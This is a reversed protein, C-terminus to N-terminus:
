TVSSLQLESMMRLLQMTTVAADQRVSQFRLKGALGGKSSLNGANRGLLVVAAETLQSRAQKLGDLWVQQMQEGAFGVGSLMMPMLLAPHAVVRLKSAKGDLLAM